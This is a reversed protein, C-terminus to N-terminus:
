KRLYEVLSVVIVFSVSFLAFARNFAIIKGILKAGWGAKGVYEKAVLRKLILFLALNVYVLWVAERIAWFAAGSEFRWMVALLAVACLVGGVLSIKEIKTLETSMGSVVLRFVM